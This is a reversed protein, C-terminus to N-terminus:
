IHWFICICIKPQGLLLMVIVECFYVFLNIRLIFFNNFSWFNILQIMEKRSWQPAYFLSTGVCEFNIQQFLCKDTKCEQHLEYILKVAREPCINTRQIDLIYQALKIWFYFGDFKPLCQTEINPKFILNETMIKLHFLITNGIGYKRQSYSFLLYFCVYFKFEM